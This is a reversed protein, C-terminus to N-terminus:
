KDNLMKLYDKRYDKYDDILPPIFVILLFLIVAIILVPILLLWGKNGFHKVLLVMSCCVGLSILIGGFMNLLMIWVQKM